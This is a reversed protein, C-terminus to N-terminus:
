RTRVTPLSWINVGFAALAYIIVGVVAVGIVIRTFIVPMPVYKVVLGVVVGVIVIVLLLTLLSM